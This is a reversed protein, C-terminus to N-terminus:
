SGANPRLPVMPVLHRPAATTRGTARLQQNRCLLAVTLMTIALPVVLATYFLSYALSLGVVLTGAIGLVSHDRRHEWLTRLFFGIYLAAGVFGQAILNLWLQGTSGIDRNGCRPCEPSKGVAISAESGLTQRTSGYGLVPSDLAVTVADVALSSRIDNSHGTVMRTTVLEGLPSLAVAVSGVTVVGALVAPVLMRGRLGLRVGVVISAVALGAWVARNLSYVIPVVAVVLLLGALLKRVPRGLVGWGVVLWVLLLSVSNGWANTFTFPAAPRPTEEGLVPQVQALVAEGGESALLDAPLVHSFPTQFSVQPFVVALTGLAVAVAGLWAFWGIVRRRPLDAESLNLVHLMMVTIALYSALRGGFALYRGIGSPPLTGEASVDLAVVSVVVWVLFLVWLWFGAPVRVRGRKYLSAAVPIALLPFIFQTVGLAWWLPWGVIALAVPWVLAQKRAPRKPSPPGTPPPQPPAADVVLYGDVDSALRDPPSAVVPQPSVERVAEAM